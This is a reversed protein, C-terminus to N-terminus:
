SVTVGGWEEPAVDAVTESFTWVHGGPDLASYQREGYPLTTPPALIRAGQSEAQAAHQDANAIRVMVSHTESGPSLVDARAHAVVVAGDGVNLQIRHTGIRVRESFGFAACLWAAAAPVDPYLLVPIVTAPPISRNAPMPTGTM